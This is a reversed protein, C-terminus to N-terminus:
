EGAGCWTAWAPAAERSPTPPAPSGPRRGELAHLERIGAGVLSALGTPEGDARPNPFGDSASFGESDTPPEVLRVGLNRLLQRIPSPDFTGDHNAGASGVDVLAVRCRSVDTSAFLRALTASSEGRPRLAITRDLLVLAPLQLRTGDKETSRIVTFPVGEPLSVRLGGHPDIAVPLGRASLLYVHV